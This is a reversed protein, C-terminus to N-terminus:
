HAYKVMINQWASPKYWKFSAWGISMAFEVAATETIHYLMLEDNGKNWAFSICEFVQEM